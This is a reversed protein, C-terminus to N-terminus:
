KKFNGIFEEVQAIIDDYSIIQLRNFDRNYSRLYAKELETMVNTRGIVILYQPSEFGHLKNQLYAKNSELWIDWDRTQKMARNVYYSLQGEKTLIPHSSKELEVLTYCPGQDLINLIVFDTIFDEGLKKKPIAESAPKLLFPNQKFFIQLEEEDVEEKLLHKLENVKQELEAIVSDSKIVQDHVPSLVAGGSQLIMGLLTIRFDLISKAINPALEPQDYRASSVNLYDIFIENVTCKELTL